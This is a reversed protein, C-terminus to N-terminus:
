AVTTKTSLDIIANCNTEQLTVVYDPEPDSPFQCVDLGTVDVQSLIWHNPNALAAANPNTV